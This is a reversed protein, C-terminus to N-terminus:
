TTSQSMWIMLIWTKMDNECRRDPRFDVRKRKGFRMKSTM